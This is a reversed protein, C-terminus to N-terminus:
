ETRRLHAKRDAQRRAWAVISDPYGPAPVPFRFTETSEPSLMLDHEVHPFVIESVDHKGGSALAAKTRTSSEATNINRSVRNQARTLRAREGATLKGDKLDKSEMHDIAGEQRQLIAAERTNLTGNQLGDRIRTEQNVDRQVIDSATQASAVAAMGALCLAAFLRTTKM